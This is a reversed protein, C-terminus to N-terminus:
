IDRMVQLYRRMHIDNTASHGTITINGKKRNEEQWGLTSKKFSQHLSMVTMFQTLLEHSM